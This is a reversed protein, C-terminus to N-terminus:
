ARWHSITRGWKFRVTTTRIWMRFTYMCSHRQTLALSFIYTQEQTHARMSTLKGTHEHTRIYIHTHTNVLIYTHVTQRVSSRCGNSMEFMYKDFSISPLRVWFSSNICSLHFVATYIRLSLMQVSRASKGIKDLM